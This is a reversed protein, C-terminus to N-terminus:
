TIVREILSSSFCVQIDYGVLSVLGTSLQALVLFVFDLDVLAVLEYPYQHSRFSKHSMM